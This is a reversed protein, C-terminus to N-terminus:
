FNVNMPQVVESTEPIAEIDKDNHYTINTIFSINSESFCKTPSTLLEM